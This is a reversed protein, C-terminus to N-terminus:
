DETRRKTLFLAIIFLVGTIGAGLTAEVFAVDIAGMQAFLLAVFFSYAALAAVAGLLDHLSLATVAAVILIVLLWFDIQWIM